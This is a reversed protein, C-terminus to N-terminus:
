FREISLSRDQISCRLLVQFGAQGGEILKTRGWPSQGVATLQALIASLTEGTFLNSLGQGGALRAELDALDIYITVFGYLKHCFRVCVKIAKIM